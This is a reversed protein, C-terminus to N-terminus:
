GYVVLFHIMDEGVRSACIVCGEDSVMRCRKDVLLVASGTGLKFLLRVSEQSQVSWVDRWGTDDKALSYWILVSKMYVEEEWDRNRAKIKNKFKGVLGDNNLEFMRSLVQYEEWWGIERDERVKEVVMKM